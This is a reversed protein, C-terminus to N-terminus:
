SAATIVEAKQPKPIPAVGLAMALMCARDHEPFFSGVLDPLAAVTHLLLFKNHRLDVGAAGM